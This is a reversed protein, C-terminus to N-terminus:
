YHVRKNQFLFAPFFVSDKLSLHSEKILKIKKFLLGFVTKYSVYYNLTLFLHRMLRSRLSLMISNRRSYNSGSLNPTVYGSLLYHFGGVCM